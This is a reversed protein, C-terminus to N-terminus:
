AVHMWATSGGQDARLSPLALGGLFTVSTMGNRAKLTLPSGGPRSGGPDRRVGMLDESLTPSIGAQRTIQARGEDVLPVKRRVPAHETHEFRRLVALAIVGLATSAVSIPYMGGGASLAALLTGVMPRTLLELHQVM